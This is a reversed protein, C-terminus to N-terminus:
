RSSSASPHAHTHLVSRTPLADRREGAGKRPPTARVLGAPLVLERSSPAVEEGEPLLSSEGRLPRGRGASGVSCVAAAPGLPREIGM